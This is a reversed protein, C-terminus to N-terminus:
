FVINATSPFVFVPVCMIIFFLVKMVSSDWSYENSLYFYAYFSVVLLQMSVREAQAEGMTFISFFFLFFLIYHLLFWKMLLSYKLIIPISFVLFITFGYVLRLDLGTSQPSSKGLTSIDFLFVIFLFPVLISIFFIIIIKLNNSLFAASFFIFPWYLFYSNHFLGAIVLYILSSLGRSSLARHTYILFFPLGLVQRYVNEVGLFVPFSVMLALFIFKSNIEKASKLLYFVFFVDYLFIVVQENGILSYLTKSGIWYLPERIYYFSDWGTTMEYLYVQFDGYFGGLRLMIMYFISLILLMRWSIRLRLSELIIFVYISVFAIVKM